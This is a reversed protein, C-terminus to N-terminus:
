SQASVNHFVAIKGSSVGFRVQPVFAGRESIELSLPSHTRVSYALRLFDKRNRLSLLQIQVAQLLHTPQLSRAPSM